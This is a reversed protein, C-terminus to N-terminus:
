TLVGQNKLADADVTSITLSITDGVGVTHLLDRVHEPTSGLPGIPHGAVTYDNAKPINGRPTPKKAPPTM